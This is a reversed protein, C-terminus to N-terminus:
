ASQGGLAPDAAHMTPRQAVPVADCTTLGGELFATLKRPTPYDFILTESLATAMGTASHLMNRLEVAGHSDLGADMLPDDAGVHDGATRQAMDLVACLSACPRSSPSRVRAVCCAANAVSPRDSLVATRMECVHIRRRYVLAMRANQAAALSGQGCALAERAPVSVFTLLAHVITGSYGFSSVGGAGAEVM